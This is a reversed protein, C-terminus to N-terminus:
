GYGARTIGGCLTCRREVEVRRELGHGCRALTCVDFSAVSGGGAGASGSGSCGYGNFRDDDVDILMARVREYVETKYYM